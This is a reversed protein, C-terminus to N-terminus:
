ASVKKFNMLDYFMARTRENKDSDSMFRFGCKEYFPTAEAYADVTIFRCGSRSNHTYLYKIQLIISEGIHKGIYEEAVALRGIKIAPYEKRRKENPIQRNLKNWSSKQTPDFVIKDNLLSYYAVTKDAENDELLYTVAMMSELYNKADDYLFNNLDDDACKFLKIETDANIQRFTFKSIDM